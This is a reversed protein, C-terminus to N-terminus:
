VRKLVGGKYSWSLYDKGCSIFIVKKPRSKKVKLDKNKAEPRAKVYAKVARERVSTTPM